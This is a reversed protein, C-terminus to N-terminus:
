AWLHHLGVIIHLQRKILILHMDFNQIPMCTRVSLAHCQACMCAFTTYMIVMCRVQFDTVRRQAVHTRIPALYMNAHSPYMAGGPKLFKNRAVLVSDLMSERLLFYGMWESIIIDVKEPLEISEITGQIVEIM